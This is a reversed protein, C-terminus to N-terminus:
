TKKINYSAVKGAFGHPARGEKRGSTIVFLESLSVTASNLVNLRNWLDHDEATTLSRWGGIAHWADARIGLNAGHVHPHTGDKHIIYQKEFLEPVQVEHDSYSDVKVVGAIADIGQNAWFLQTDLWNVPVECDADTNAFWCSELPGPYRKLAEMAAFQRAVGVNKKKIEVVVGGKGIIQQGIASTNDSSSDVCLIIDISVSPPIFRAAELISDLCRPLLKEEDYAPILICIHSINIKKKQINNKFDMCHNKFLLHVNKHPLDHYFFTLCTNLILKVPKNKIFLIAKDSQQECLNIKYGWSFFEMDYLNKQYLVKFKMRKVWSPLQPNVHLQGNLFQIGAVNQKLFTVTSVMVGLHIGEQTTGGQTDKLDSILSEQYLKASLKPKTNLLMSALTIKSLTSGHSTRDLYYQKTRQSTSATFEYGSQKLIRVIEMEGLLYFLMLTDPQKAIKFEDPNKGEAKLIRDLREFNSYKNKYHKWDFEKLNEYGEFQSLVNDHFPIFMNKIILQWRYIDSNTISLLEYLYDKQVPALIKELQLARELAWVAMINTYTNNNLGPQTSSIDQEHYEDPGMVGLIEFKKKDFNHSVISSIFKAIELIIEAGYENLFDIDQTVQYYNWINYVIAMNVHRQHCSFDSDWKGSKPNLHITQTEEEGNSASQWPFMAGEFQNQQALERATHLRFYRYLLMARATAPFTLYFFPLVFLEDWFVHARYAEGHLGRAPIGYDIHSSHKSLTQLTHFIHLRIIKQQQNADIEVDARYWLNKWM